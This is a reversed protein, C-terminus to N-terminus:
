DKRRLLADLSEQARQRNENPRNDEWRRRSLEDCIAVVGLIPGFFLAIPIAFINLILGILIGLYQLIMATYLLLLYYSEYRFEDYVFIHLLFVIFGPLAFM